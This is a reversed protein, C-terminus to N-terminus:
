VLYVFLICELFVSSLMGCLCVVFVYYVNDFMYDCLLLFLDSVVEIM